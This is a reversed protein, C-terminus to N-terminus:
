SNFPNVLFNIQFRLLGLKITDGNRVPYAISPRLVEGNLVVGNSSNNDIIYVRKDIFKLIAHYRSIGNSFADYPNLDILPSISFEPSERGIMVCDMLDFVLTIGANLNKLAIRWPRPLIQDFPKSQPIAIHNFTEGQALPRTM